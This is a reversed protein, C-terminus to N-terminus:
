EIVFNPQIHLSDCKSEFVTKNLMEDIQGTQKDLISFLYKYRRSSSYGFNENEYEKKFVIYRNNYDFKKVDSSVKIFIGTCRPKEKAFFNWWMSGRGWHTETVIKDSIEEVTTYEDTVIALFM